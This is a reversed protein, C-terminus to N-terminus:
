EESAPLPDLLAFFHGLVRRLNEARAARRLIRCYVHMDELASTPVRTVGGHRTAFEMTFGDTNKEATGNAVSRVCVCVSALSVSRLRRSASRQVLSNTTMSQPMPIWATMWTSM